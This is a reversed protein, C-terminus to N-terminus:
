FANPIISKSVNDLVESENNSFLFLHKILRFKAAALNFDINLLLSYEKLNQIKVNSIDEKLMAVVADAISFTTSNFRRNLEDILNDIIAYYLKIKYDINHQPELNQSSTNAANAYM